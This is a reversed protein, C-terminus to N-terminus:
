RSILGAFMTSSLSPCGRITSKPRATRSTSSASSFSLSAPVYGDRPLNADSKEMGEIAKNYDALAKDYAKRLKHCLGRQLYAQFLRPNIRIADDLDQQAQDLAGQECLCISRNYYALAYNPDGQIARTYDEVSERFAGLDRHSNGRNNYAGVAVEVLWVADEVTLMPRTRMSMECLEIAKTAAERAEEPKGAENLLGSLNRYSDAFRPDLGIAANLDDLARAGEGKNMFALARINFAKVSKSDFRLAQEADAIAKDYQRGTCTEYHRGALGSRGPETKWLCGSKQADHGLGSWFM